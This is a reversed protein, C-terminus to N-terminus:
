SGYKVRNAAVKFWRRLTDLDESGEEVVRSEVEGLVCLALNELDTHAEKLDPNSVIIKFWKVYTDLFKDDEM